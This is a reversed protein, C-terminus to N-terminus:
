MKPQFFSFFELILHPAIQDSEKLKLNKISLNFLIHIFFYTLNVDQIQGTIRWPNLGWLSYSFDELLPSISFGNYYDYLREAPVDRCPKGLM